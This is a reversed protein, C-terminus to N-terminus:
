EGEGATRLVMPQYFLIQHSGDERGLDLSVVALNGFPRWGEAIMLNVQKTLADIGQGDAPGSVARVVDYGDYYEVM